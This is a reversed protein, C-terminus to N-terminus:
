RVQKGVFRNGLGKDIITWATGNSKILYLWKTTDKLPPGAGGCRTYSRKSGSYLMISATKESKIVINESPYNKLIYDIAKDNSLNKEIYVECNKELQYIRGDNIKCRFAKKHKTM